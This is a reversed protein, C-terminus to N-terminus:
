SERAAADKKEMENCEQELLSVFVDLAALRSVLSSPFSVVVFPGHSLHRRPPSTRGFAESAGARSSMQRALFHRALDNYM